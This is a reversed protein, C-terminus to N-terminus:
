LDQKSLEEKCVMLVLFKGTFFIFYFLYIRNRYTIVATNMLFKGVSSSLSRM